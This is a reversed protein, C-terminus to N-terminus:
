LWDKKRFTTWLAGAILVIAAISFVFGWHQGFGPYPVNQGYFGTIATPVAIIAAWSTLKKMVTNMRNDSLAMNTEFITSIMDRLSETWEAARLVHDYLDEYYPALESSGNETVFRRMVTNIVERMPLIVRRATVLSKRLAYTHRQLATAQSPREDFLLDEASEVADDLTEIATFYGDVIEDLLGHVLARPGCHLLDSMADWRELVPTMDFRDDLRITVLAGKLTFASVRSLSLEGTDEDLHLASTALFLHTSFRMAKPREHLNIADEVAHQELGLEQAVAAFHDADPQCVDAWVLCDPEDLYDSVDSLPFDELALTGNRWLRTRVTTGVQSSM